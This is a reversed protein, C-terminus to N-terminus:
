SLFTLVPALKDQFFLHPCHGCDDFEVVQLTPGRTKMEQVVEGPLVDSQAGRLLLVPARIRDWDAWMDM